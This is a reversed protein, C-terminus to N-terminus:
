ISSEILFVIQQNVKRNYMRIYSHRYAVEICNKIAYRTALVPFVYCSHIDYLEHSKNLFFM